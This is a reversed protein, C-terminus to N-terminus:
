FWFHRDKLQSMIRDSVILGFNSTNLYFESKNNLVFYILLIYVM